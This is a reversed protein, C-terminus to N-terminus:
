IDSNLDRRISNRLTNYRALIEAIGIIYNNVSVLGGIVDRRIGEDIGEILAYMHASLASKLEEDYNKILDFINITDEVSLGNIRCIFGIGLLWEFINQRIYYEIGDTDIMRYDSWHEYDVIPLSDIFRINPYRMMHYIENIHGPRLQGAISFDLRFRRGDGSHFLELIATHVYGKAHMDKLQVISDNALKTIIEKRENYPLWTFRRTPYDFYGWAEMFACKIRSNGVIFPVEQEPLSMDSEPINFIVSDPLFKKRIDIEKALNESETESDEQRIAKKAYKIVLIKDQSVPVVRSRGEWLYFGIRNCEKLADAPNEFFRKGMFVDHFWLLHEKSMILQTFSLFQHLKILGGKELIENIAPSLWTYDEGFLVYLQMLENYHNNIFIDASDKETFISIAAEIKQMFAKEFGSVTDGFGERMPSREAIRALEAIARVRANTDSSDFLTYLYSVAKRNPRLQDKDLLARAAEICLKWDREELLVEIRRKLWPMDYNNYTEILVGTAKAFIEMDKGRNKQIIDDLIELGKEQHIDGAMLLAKAISIKGDDSFRELNNSLGELFNVAEEKYFGCSLLAGSSAVGVMYIDSKLGKLLLSIIAGQREPDDRYIEILEKLLDRIIFREAGTRAQLLCQELVNLAKYFLGNSGRLLIEELFRIFMERNNKYQSLLVSIDQEFFREVMNIVADDNFMIISLNIMVNLRVDPDADKSLSLLNAFAEKEVEGKELRAKLINAYGDVARSRMFYSIHASYNELVNKALRRNNADNSSILIAEAAVLGINKSNLKSIIFNELGIDSPNDIYIKALDGFIIVDENDDDALTLLIEKITNDSPKSLFYAHIEAIVEKKYAYHINRDKILGILRDKLNIDFPYREFLIWTAKLPAGFEASGKSIDMLIRGAYDSGSNMLFLLGPIRSAPSYIESMGALILRNSIIHWDRIQYEALEARRVMDSGYMTEGFGVPV